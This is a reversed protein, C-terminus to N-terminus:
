NMGYGNGIMIVGVFVWKFNDGVSKYFCAVTNTGVFEEIKGGGM